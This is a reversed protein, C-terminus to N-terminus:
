GRRRSRLASCRSRRRSSRGPSGASSSRRRTSTWSSPWRSRPRAGGLLSSLQIQALRRFDLRRLLVAQPIATLAALLWAPAALQILWATESGFIPTFVLPALVFITLAVLVAEILIVVALGAQLHERRMAPRHVLANGFGGAMGVALEQMFLVIAFKGFEAPPIM